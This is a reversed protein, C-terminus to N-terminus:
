RRSWASGSTYRRLGLTFTLWGLAAFTGSIALLALADHWTPRDILRAPVAAVFAAPVATYLLAKLGGTFIDVPYAALTLVTNFALGGPEGRGTFFALSGVTVLFGTLLVAAAVSGGAYLVIRAPTPHAAVSFLLVGFLVDGLNVTDVRRLLLHPLPPVPLSLTEDLAGDRILDPLRRSNSMLGLVLGASTTLVAFLMLVRHTDWGRVTRVRGFFLLWFAVWAVDNAVMAGVQTWFASRRAAADALAGRLVALVASM